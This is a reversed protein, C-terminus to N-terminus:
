FPRGTRPNIDGTPTLTERGVGTERASQAIDASDTQRGGGAPGQNAQINGTDYDKANPAFRSPAQAALSSEAEAHGGWPEHEPVRGNISEKVTRNVSLNSSTPKSAETAEPGNLDILKATQRSNGAAKLHMNLDTTLKIDKNSHVNFEGTATEMKIGDSGRAKINISDADLNFDGGCYLNFDNTAHLSINNESYIDINGDDSMQIWSTGSQNIIYVIGASDNMLIQAGSGTRLRVLNNKGAERNPDPNLAAGSSVTGDDLVFSHGGPSNFGMMNSPSERRSGSSGIGRIPDLGLGQQAIGNALPHRTRQNGQQSEFVSTDTTVGLVTGNEGQVESAPLGPVSSNRTADPLIGVMFGEQERGTFGVLVETGPAPPHSSMGYSLTHDAGQMNGGFPSTRRIRHLSQKSGRNNVTQHGVLEVTVHGQYTDDQVGVVRALFLGNLNRMGDVNDRDFRGPVGKSIRNLGTYRDM